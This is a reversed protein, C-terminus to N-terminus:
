RLTDSSNGDSRRRAREASASRHYIATVLSHVRVPLLRKFWEFAYADVGILVRRRDREIARVIKRAATKAPRGYREVMEMAQRKGEADVIRASRIVNTRISGPHVSVVRVGTGELETWLAESLARVGAKTVSYSAQGPFGLFGFMSSLNVICSESERELYPLFFKCGHIVGWLNIGVIWDLDEFSQEAFTSGVTVGANNVVIHIAGFRAFIEAPLRRMRERDSVDAIFSEARVGLAQIQKTTAALDGEQIDVLALLCGRQALEECVARGIGSAAGTVVAVRGELNM